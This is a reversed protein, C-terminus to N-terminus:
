VDQLRGKIPKTTKKQKGEEIRQKGLFALLEDIAGFDWRRGSQIHEVEAKWDVSKSPDDKERWLRVLFSKYELIPM